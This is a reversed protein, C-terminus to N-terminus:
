DKKAKILNSFFFKDLIYYWIANCIPSLLSSIALLEIRAGTIYYGLTIDIIYHGASFIITRTATYKSNFIYNETLNQLKKSNKQNEM